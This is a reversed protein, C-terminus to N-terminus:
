DPRGSVLALVGSYQLLRTAAALPGIEFGTFFGAIPVAGFHRALYASDHDAISYLNSGRSVCDFYLGFAPPNQVSREMEELTLKLDDRAGQEDRLAFGILDGPEPRYVTGILGRAEDFGIMNRILYRGHELREARPDLAAALYVMAAARRLDDALPGITQKLVELAPHGDLEILINQRVATVRRPTGILRCGLAAGTTIEFDGSFLMGAVANTSVADGCLAFAEGSMGDETAGGGVVVAQPLEQALAALFPEPELNYSDPFLCLLNSRGLAPRAAAAVEAAAEVPRGKLSPVFIRQATIGGGVALVAVSPGREIERGGAIIGSASCGAVQPTQARESVTRMLLRFSAAHKSSAFCIAGDAVRLGAQALAQGAAEDAAAAPDAATSYGVGARLM